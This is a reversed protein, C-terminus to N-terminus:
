LKKLIVEKEIVEVWYGKEKARNALASKNKLYYTGKPLRTGTLKEYQAETLRFDKGKDFYAEMKEFDPKRAM